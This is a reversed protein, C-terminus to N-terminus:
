TEFLTSFFEEFVLRFLLNCCKGTSTDHCGGADGGAGPPVPRSLGPFRAFAQAQGQDRAQRQHCYPLAGEAPERELLAARGRDDRHGHHGAVMHGGESRVAEAHRGGAGDLVAHRGDDDAENAGDLTSRLLRLRSFVPSGSKM